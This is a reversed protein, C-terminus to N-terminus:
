DEEAISIPNGRTDDFVTTTVDEFETPPQTCTIGAAVLREPDAPADDVAFLTTPTGDTAVADRFPRVAPPSSPELLLEVATQGATGVTSWRRGSGLPIDSRREFGLTDTSFRLADAQDDVFVSALNIGMPGGRGAVPFGGSTAARDASHSVPLRNVIEFLTRDDRAALVDLIARRPPAGLADFADTM